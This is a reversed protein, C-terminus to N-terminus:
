FIFFLFYIFFLEWDGYGAGENRITTNFRCGSSSFLVKSTDYENLLCTESWVGTMGPFMQLFFASGTIISRRAQLAFFCILFVILRSPLLFLVHLFFFFFFFSDM